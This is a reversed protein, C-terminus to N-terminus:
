DRRSFDERPDPRELEQLHEAISDFAEDENLFYRALREYKQRNRGLTRSGNAVENGAKDKTMGSDVLSLFEMVMEIRQQEHENNQSPDRNRSGKPRGSKQASAKRAEVRRVAEELVLLDAEVPQEGARLQDLVRKLAEITSM